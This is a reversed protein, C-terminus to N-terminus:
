KINICAARAGGLFEIFQDPAKNERMSAEIVSFEEFTYRKEIKALICECMERRGTSTKQCGSLFMARVEAPYDNDPKNTATATNPAPTSNRPANNSGTACAMSFVATVVVLWLNKTM